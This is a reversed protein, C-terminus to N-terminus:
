KREYMYWDSVSGKKGDFPYKNPIMESLKYVENLLPHNTFKRSRMHPAYQQDHDSSYVILHKTKLAILEKMYKEYVEDEILHYIVDMSLALDDPYFDGFAHFPEYFSHQPMKAECLVLAAKSIDVGTIILEPNQDSILKLNNGDGCGYEILTKVKHKKIFYTIFQAKYEALYGYSGNGSNGGNQYREQWYQKSDLM